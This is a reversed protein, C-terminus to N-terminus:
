NHTERSLPLEKANHAPPRGRKSTATQGAILAKAKELRAIELDIGADIGAIDM